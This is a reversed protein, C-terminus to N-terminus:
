AGKSVGLAARADSATHNAFHIRPLWEQPPIIKAGPPGFLLILLWTCLYMLIVGALFLLLSRGIVGLRSVNKLELAQVLLGSIVSVYAYGSFEKVTRLLDSLNGGLLKSLGLNAYFLLVPM